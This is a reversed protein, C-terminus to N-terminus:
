VVYQSVLGCPHIFGASVPSCFCSKYRCLHTLVSSSVFNYSYSVNRSLLKSNNKHYNRVSNLTQTAQTSTYCTSSTIAVHTLNLPHYKQTHRYVLYRTERKSLCHSIYCLLTDLEESHSDQSQHWATNGGNCLYRRLLVVSCM